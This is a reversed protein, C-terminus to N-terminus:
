MCDAAIIIDARPAEADVHAPASLRDIGDIAAVGSSCDAQRVAVLYASRGDLSQRNLADAPWLQLKTFILDM